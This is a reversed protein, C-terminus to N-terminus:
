RWRVLAPLSAFWWVLLARGALGFTFMGAFWLLVPAFWALPPVFRFFHVYPEAVARVAMVDAMCSGPPKECFVHKGANIAALTPQLGMAGVLASMVMTPMIQHSMEPVSFSAKDSAITIDCAM